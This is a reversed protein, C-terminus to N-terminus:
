KAGGHLFIELSLNSVGSKNIPRIPAIKPIAKIKKIKKISKIPEIKTISPCKDKTFGVPAGTADRMIGGDLWGLHKGNFGYVHEGKLYAVAEGNWMYITAEGDDAIYAVANGKPDVLSIEAMNGGQPKFRQSSLMCEYIFCALPAIDGRSSAADLAEMYERRQEVQIVTWSYGGSALMTNMLFRGLRGNGDAYPHIYVFIFHGLVARVAASEEAQLLDCLEPMMDRVAEKSPPFHRANRIFIPNNRYGALDVAKLLGATLCPEWMKQYWTTHDTRFAEGPNVGSFIRLITKKVENHALWYGHAALANKEGKDFANTEENWTGTAVRRILDNSVRYGEISLSHYADNAYIEEIDEMFTEINGPPGPEAPFAGLIVVRMEKWMLRMRLVYPSRAREYGLVPLPAEFPNSESVSYGTTRLTSIIEDAFEARGAARLAGALRGAITSHGGGVLDRILESPDVQHLAIHADRASNRFFAETSRILALSLTMVRVGSITEIRAPPIELRRRYDVLSCQDPLELVGNTAKPSFLIVQKPSITNGVHNLISYEPSAYWEAGFRDDCYERIFDKVVAYWPTTDGVREEPRSSMYWGKIIQQLFGNKLLNERQGRTLETSRFVTKGANQLGQLAQLADALQRQAPSIKM